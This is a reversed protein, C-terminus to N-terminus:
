PAEKIPLARRTRDRERAGMEMGAEIAAWENPNAIRPKGGVDVPCATQMYGAAMGALHAKLIGRHHEYLDCWADVLTRPGSVRIRRDPPWAFPELGLFVATRAALQREWRLGGTVYGEVDEGDGESNIQEILEEVEAGYRRVLGDLVRHCSAAEEAPTGAHEARAILSRLTSESTAM